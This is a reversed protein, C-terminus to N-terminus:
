RSTDQPRETRSFINRLIPRASLRQLAKNMLLIWPQRRQKGQLSAIIAFIPIIHRPHLPRSLYTRASNNAELTSPAFLFSPQSRIITAAGERFVPHDEVNLIRIPKAQVKTGNAVDDSRRTRPPHASM